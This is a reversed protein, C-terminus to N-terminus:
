NPLVPYVFPKPPTTLAELFAILDAKEAPTLDAKRFSPSLNRTVEGGKMYHDLVEALTKASGDHFYPATLAVDRLAPTKFAGDMIPINRHKGRGPLPDKEGHSALGLNHFGNDTFNPPQHCAACAGKLPDLFLKFGNLQRANMAGADGALWRDFPSERSILSRQFAALAKAITLPKIGEGPYAKEFADIYGPIQALNRVVEAPKIKSGANIDAAEGQGGLGQQELTPQRGDWMFITNYGINTLSPTSLRMKTGLFRMATPLGDAWGRESLHCSACTVQGSGSLRADFFLMKGLESRIPTWENEKPSNPRPPLRWEQASIASPPNADSSPTALAGLATASIASAIASLSIRGRARLRRTQAM